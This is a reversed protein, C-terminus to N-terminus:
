LPPLYEHSEIYHRIGGSAIYVSNIGPVFINVHSGELGSSTRGEDICFSCQHSGHFHNGSYIYRARHSMEDLITRLDKPTVGRPVTQPHELWGIALLPVSWSDADYPGNHYYCLGLDPFYTMEDGQKWSTRHAVQSGM